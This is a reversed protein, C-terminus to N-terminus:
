ARRPLRLSRPGLELARTALEISRPIAAEKGEYRQFTRLCVGLQRGAETQSWGMRERWFFIEDATM